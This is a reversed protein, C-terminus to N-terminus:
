KEFTTNTNTELSYSFTHIAQKIITNLFSISLFTNLLKNFFNYKPSMNKENIGKQM